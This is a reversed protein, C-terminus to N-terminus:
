QTGSSKEIFFRYAGNEKVPGPENITIKEEYLRALGQLLGRVFPVLGKRHSDYDLFFGKQTKRVVFRPPKMGEMVTGLEEHITNLDRLFGEMTSYMKYFSSYSGQSTYTVWGQGAKELFDEASIDCTEVASQVIGYTLDDEYVQMEIFIDNEIGNKKAIIKWAEKNFEKSILEKLYVNIMGYM